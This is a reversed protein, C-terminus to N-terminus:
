GTPATEPPGTEAVAPGGAGAPGEAGGAAPGAAEVERRAPSGALEGLLREIEGDFEDQVEVRARLQAPADLGHLKSRREFARLLTAAARVAPDDDLLVTGDDNKMVRGQSVMVHRRRVVGWLVRELADLKETEIAVLLDAQDRLEDRRATMARKLDVSVAAPSSYGLQDAIAQLPVHAIRLAIARTRREAVQAQQLKSAPL